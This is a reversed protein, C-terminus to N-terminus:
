ARSTLALSPTIVEASAMGVRNSSCPNPSATVPQPGKLTLLSPTLTSTMVGRACSYASVM